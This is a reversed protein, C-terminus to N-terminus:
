KITEEILTATEESIPTSQSYSDDKGYVCLWVKGADRQISVVGKETERIITEKM